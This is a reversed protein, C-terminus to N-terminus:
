NPSRLTTLAATTLLVLGILLAEIRIARRMNGGAHAANRLLGATLRLRTLAGLWLAGVFLSRKLSFFWGYPTWLGAILDGTVVRLTVVGATIGTGRGALRYHPVLAEVRFAPGLLHVTILGALLM